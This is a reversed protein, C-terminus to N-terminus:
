PVVYIAGVMGGGFHSACYYGFDGAAAFTASATMGASTTPIPNGPQGTPSNNVIAGARLPHFGFNGSWTVTQGARIKICPPTYAFGPFTVTRSAGAATRDIAGAATCGNLMVVPAADTPADLLRADVAADIAPADTAPADTAPADTTAADIPQGGDDGCGAHALLAACAVFPVFSSRM